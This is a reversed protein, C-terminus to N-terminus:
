IYSKDFEVKFDNSKRVIILIRFAKNMNILSNLFRIYKKVNVIVNVNFFFM